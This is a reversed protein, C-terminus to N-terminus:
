LRLMFWVDLLQRSVQRVLAQPGDSTFYVKLHVQDNILTDLVGTSCELKDSSM